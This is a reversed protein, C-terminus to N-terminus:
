DINDVEIGIKKFLKLVRPITEKDYYKTNSSYLDSHLAIVHINDGYISKLNFLAGSHYSIVVSFHNKIFFKEICEGVDLNLFGNDLYFQKDAERSQYHSKIFIDSESFKNFVAAYTRKKCEIWDDESMLKWFPQDLFLVKNNPVRLQQKIPIAVKKSEEGILHDISYGYIRKIREENQGMLNGFYFSHGVSLRFVNLIKKLLAKILDKERVVNNDYAGIGDQFISINHIKKYKGFVYNNLPWAIDSVFINQGKAKGIIGEIRRKCIQFKKWRGHGFRKGMTSKLFYKESWDECIIQEEEPMESILINFYDSFFAEIIQESVFLHFPTHVIFFNKRKKLDDATM